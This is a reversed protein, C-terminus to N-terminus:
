YIPAKFGFTFGGTGKKNIAYGVNIVIDYYTLIDIGVGSGFLFSNSLSNTERHHDQWVYGTDFKLTGYITFHPKNVKNWKKLIHLHVVKKPLICFRIANNFTFYHQGDIVYLDYGTLSATEYGLAQDYIYSARNKMSASVKLTSGWFWRQGLQKYYQMDISTNWYIFDYNNSEALQASGGLYYGTTPYYIYNRQDLSYSYTLILKRSFRSKVGWYEPNAILVSDNVSSFCYELSLMHRTRIFPRYIYTAKIGETKKLLHDSKLRQQKDGETKYDVNKNFLAYASINLYSTRAQNLAINSYYATIGQEYGFSGQLTFKHGLGWLNDMKGGVDYTIRKADMKKVWSSLNRDELKVDFLPWLYWREEVSIMVVCSTAGDPIKNNMKDAATQLGAHAIKSSDKAYSLSDPAAIFSSDSPQYTITVYNFLSINMLNQHAKEIADQLDPESITMGQRFPLERLIIKDRTISNGSIYIDSIYINQAAMAASFCLFLV